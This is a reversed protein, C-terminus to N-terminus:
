RPKISVWEKMVDKPHMRRWLRMSGAFIMGAVFGLAALLRLEPLEILVGTLLIAIVLGAGLSGGIPIKSSDIRAVAPADARLSDTRGFSQGFKLIGVLVGGLIAALFIPWIDSLLVVSLAAVVLILTFVHAITIRGAPTAQRHLSKRYIGFIVIAIVQRWYWFRGRGHQYQELLDGIISEDEPNSCFLQLFWTAVGPVPRIKM